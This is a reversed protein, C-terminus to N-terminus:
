HPPPAPPPPPAAAVSDRHVMGMPERILLDRETGGEVRTILADVAASGLEALSGSRISTGIATVSPELDPDIGKISIFASEGAATILASLDTGVIYRMAIYLVGNEEGIAYVPIVHAHEIQAAVQSEGEFRRRFDADDSLEPAVVKLAVLRHHKVDRALYVVGMGGRGLERELSYEGALAAQLDLFEPSPHTM